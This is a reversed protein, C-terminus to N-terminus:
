AEAPIPRRGPHGAIGDVATAEGQGFGGRGLLSKQLQVTQLHTPLPVTTRAVSTGRPLLPKACGRAPGPAPDHGLRFPWLECQTVPCERVENPQFCSCELCKGRIAKLIEAKTTV